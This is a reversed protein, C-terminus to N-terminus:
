KRFEFSNKQYKEPFIKAETHTISTIYDHQIIIICAAPVRMDVEYMVGKAKASRPSSHSVHGVEAKEREKRKKRDVISLM